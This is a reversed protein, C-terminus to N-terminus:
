ICFNRVFEEQSETEIASRGRTERVLAIAKEPAQRYSACLKQILLAAMMGTRGMGAECHLVLGRRCNYNDVSTTCSSNTSKIAAIWKEIARLVKKDDVKEVKEVKEDVPDISDIPDAASSSQSATNERTSIRLVQSVKSSKSTKPTGMQPIPFHRSDFASHRARQLKQGAHEDQMDWIRGEFNFKGARRM